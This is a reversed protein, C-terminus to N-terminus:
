FARKLNKTSAEALRVETGAPRLRALCRPAAASLTLYMDMASLMRVLLALSQECFSSVILYQHPHNQSGAM